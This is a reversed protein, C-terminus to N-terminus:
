DSGRQEQRPSPDLSCNVEPVNWPCKKLLGSLLSLSVESSSLSLQILAPMKKKKKTKEECLIPENRNDLFFDYQGVWVGLYMALNHIYLEYCPLWFKPSIISDEVFLKKHLKALLSNVSLCTNFVCQLGSLNIRKPSDCIILILESLLTHRTLCPICFHGLNLCQGLIEMSVSMFVHILIFFFPIYVLSSYANVGFISAPLYVSTKFLACTETPLRANHHQTRRWWMLGQPSWMRWM